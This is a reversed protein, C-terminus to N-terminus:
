FRDKLAEGIISVSCSAGSTALARVAEPDDVRNLREIAERRSLPVRNEGDQPALQELKLLQEITLTEVLRGAMCEALPQPAGNDLLAQEVRAETVRDLLKEGGLVWFAGLGLLFLVFLLVYRM